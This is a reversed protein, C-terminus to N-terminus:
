VKNVRALIYRSGVLLASVGKFDWRRGQWEEYIVVDNVSVGLVEEDEKSMALIKGYVTNSANPTFVELSKGAVDVTKDQDFQEKILLWGTRPHVQDISAPVVVTSWSPRVLGRRRGKRRQRRMRKGEKQM